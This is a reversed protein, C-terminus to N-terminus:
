LFQASKMFIFYICFLLLYEALAKVRQFAKPEPVKLLKLALVPLSAKWVDPHHSTHHGPAAFSAISSEPCFNRKWSADERCHTLGLGVVFTKSEWSRAAISARTLGIQHQRDV